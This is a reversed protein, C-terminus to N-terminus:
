LIQRREQFDAYNSQCYFLKNRTKPSCKQDYMWYVDGSQHPGREYRQLDQCIKPWTKRICYMLYLLVGQELQDMHSTEPNKTARSTWVSLPTQILIATPVNHFVRSILNQIACIVQVLNKSPM